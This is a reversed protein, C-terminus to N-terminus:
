DAPTTDTAFKFQLAKRDESQKRREAVRLVAGDNETADTQPQSGGRLVMSLMGGPGTNKFANKEVVTLRLQVPRTCARARRRRSSHPTQAVVHGDPGVAQLWAGEVINASRLVTTEPSM